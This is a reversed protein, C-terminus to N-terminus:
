RAPLEGRYSRLGLAIDSLMGPSADLDAYFHSMITYTMDARQRM